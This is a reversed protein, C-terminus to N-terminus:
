RVSVAPAEAFARAQSRREIDKQPRYWSAAGKEPYVAMGIVGVNRTSGHKLHTYSESVSAYKFSAVAVESTRFGKVELTDGPKVIYGRNKVSASKGTMVDLGDVSLVIEVRSYSVNKVVLSYRSGGKGVVFRKGQSHINKAYGWQSKVGWEVLSDTSKQLSDGTVKSGNTMKTVGQKDNYYIVNVSSPKQGSRKFETYSISSEVEEGFGTGLGPRYSAELRPEADRGVRVADSTSPAPM